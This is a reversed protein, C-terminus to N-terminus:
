KTKDYNLLRREQKSNLLVAGFTQTTPMSFNSRSSYITQPRSTVSVTQILDNRESDRCARFRQMSSILDQKTLPRRRISTHKGINTTSVDKLNGHKNQLM